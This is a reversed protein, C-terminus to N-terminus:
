FYGFSQVTDCLKDLFCLYLVLLASAICPFTVNVQILERKLFPSFLQIGVSSHSVIFFGKVPKREADLVVNTDCTVIASGSHCFEEALRSRFISGDNSGKTTQSGDRKATGVNRLCKQPIDLLICFLFFSLSWNESSLKPHLLGIQPEVLFGQHSSLVGPPEEPPSAQKTAAPPEGNPITYIPEGRCLYNRSSFWITRSFLIIM